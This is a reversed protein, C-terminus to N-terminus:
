NTERNRRELEKLLFRLGHLFDGMAAVTREAQDVNYTHSTKNRLERYRMYPPADHIIGADAAGRMLDAFDIQHLEDPNDAVQVLQRRIM